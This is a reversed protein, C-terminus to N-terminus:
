DYIRIVNNKHFPERCVVCTNSIRKTCDYCYVKHGCTALAYKAESNWCVVCQKDKLSRDTLTELLKRKKKVNIEMRVLEIERDLDEMQNICKRKRDCYFAGQRQM